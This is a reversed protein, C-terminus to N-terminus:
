LGGPEQTEIEAFVPLHDSGRLRRAWARHKFPTASAAYIADLKQATWHTRRITKTLEV